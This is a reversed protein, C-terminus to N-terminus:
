NDTKSIKSLAQVFKHSDIKGTMSLAIFSDEEVILIVIERITKNDILAKITIKAEKDIIEVLNKYSSVELNNCIRSFIGNYNKISRECFAINIFRTGNFIPKLDQGDKDFSLVYRVLFTPIKYTDIGENELLYTFIPKSNSKDIENSSLCINPLLIM